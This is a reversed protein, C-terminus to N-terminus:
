SKTKDKEQRILLWFFHVRRNKKLRLADVILQMGVKSQMKFELSDDREILLDRLQKMAMHYNNKGDEVDRHWLAQCIVERSLSYNPAADILMGLLVCMNGKIKKAEGNWYYLTESNMDICTNGVIHLNKVYPKIITKYKYVVMWLVGVLLWVVLTVFQRWGWRDMRALIYTPVFAVKAVLLGHRAIGIGVSDTVFGSDPVRVQLVTDTPVHVCMRDESPFIRALDRIHLELGAPVVIGKRELAMCYLSDALLVDYDIEPFMMATEHQYKVHLFEEKPHYFRTSMVITDDATILTFNKRKAYAESDYKGWYPFGRIRMISDGWHPAEEKFVENVQHCLSDKCSRYNGVFSVLLLLAGILVFLVKKM